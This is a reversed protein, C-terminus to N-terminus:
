AFDREALPLPQNLRDVVFRPLGPFFSMMRLAPSALRPRKLLWALGKCWEQRHGILKQHCLRWEREADTRPKLLAQRVFAPVAIGMTLAWAIGEGTFPEVYGAADGILFVRNSAVCGPRRTLPLTGHWDADAPECVEPLHCDNLIRAILGSPQHVQQLAHRNVSAAVHLRDGRLRVMGVYAGQGVAMTVRGMEFGSAKTAFTAGLGIRSSRLVGDQFEPCNRLSPHGLGDAAVVASAEVKFTGTRADALEVVRIGTKEPTNRPLVSAAVEPLFVVGEAIAAQVLAEDLAMRPICAAGTLPVQFGCSKMIIKASTLPIGGLADIRPGLGVQELLALAPRSVCSGCVKDRPFAKREVLLTKLRRQALGRAALAGAPGAGIVIADFRERTAAELSTLALGTM